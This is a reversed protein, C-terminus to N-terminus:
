TREVAEHDIGIRASGGEQRYAEPPLAVHKCRDSVGGLSTRAARRLWSGLLPSLTNLFWSKALEIHEGAGNHAFARKRWWQRGPTCECHRVRFMAVWKIASDASGMVRKWGVIRGGSLWSDALLDVCNGISRSLGKYKNSLHPGSSAYERWPAKPREDTPVPQHSFVIGFLQRLSVRFFYRPGNRWRHVNQLMTHRGALCPASSPPPPPM